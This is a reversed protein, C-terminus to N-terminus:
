KTERFTIYDESLPFELRTKTYQDENYVRFNKPDFGMKRILDIVLTLGLGEGQVEDGYFVYLEHMDSPLQQMVTNLRQRVHNEETKSMVNNSQLMISLRKASLNVDIGVKVDLLKMAKKYYKLNLKSFHETFAKMGAEYKEADDFSYGQVHFFLRKLNAKIANNVLESIILEVSDACIKGNSSLEIEDLLNRLEARSEQFSILVGMKGSLLNCM